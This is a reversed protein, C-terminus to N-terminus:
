LYHNTNNVMEIPTQHRVFTVAKQFCLVRTSGSVLGTRDFNSVLQFNCIQWDLRYWSRCTSTTKKRLLLARREGAIPPHAKLMPSERSRCENQQESASDADDCTGFSGEVNDVLMGSIGSIGSIKSIGSFGSIGSIGSIVRIGAEGGKASKGVERSSDVTVVDRREFACVRCSCICCCSSCCGCCLVVSPINGSTSTVQVAQVRGTSHTVSWPITSRAFAAACM